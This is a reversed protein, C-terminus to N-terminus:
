GRVADGIGEPVHKGDNNEYILNKMDKEVTSITGLGFKDTQVKLVNPSLFAPLTPGVHINKIGLSLLSLLVIVAKQEYWAINYVIPLDNVSGLGFAEKLALAIGRKEATGILRNKTALAEAIRMKLAEDDFNANTITSFLADLIRRSAATDAAGKARLARNVIAEGRVAYILVDMLGATAPEKGCVGKITCGKNM